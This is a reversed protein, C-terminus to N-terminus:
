QPLRGPTLGLAKATRRAWMSDKHNTWKYIEMLCLRVEPANTAMDPAIWGALIWRLQTPM